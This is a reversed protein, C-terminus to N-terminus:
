SGGVPAWLCPKGEAYILAMSPSGAHRCIHFDGDPSPRAQRFPIVEGSSLRYGDPTVVPLAEKMKAPYCDLLNCCATPYWDHAAAPTVTLCLLLALRKM